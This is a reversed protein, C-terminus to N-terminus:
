TTVEVSRRECVCKHAFRSQGYRFPPAGTEPRLKKAIERGAKWTGAELVQALTFNVGVRERIADAIRDLMIVTVARLEVVASHSPDLPPVELLTPMSTSSSAVPLSFTSLLAPIKPKLLDFDILLGGNRYEPLGTMLEKHLIKWGLIKEMVEILSYTMWQSLKHFSVFADPSNEGDAKHLCDVPWVDGLSVGDIQSRAAPWVGSLGDVVIEWLIEIKVAIRYSSPSPIQQSSPHALLYDIIHGPRSSSEVTFYAANAADTLVSALRVLLEARGEIGTMPNSSSVQMAESIQSTSIKALGVADVRYPQEALDSFMGQSFMELSGVALGESRGIPEGGEKPTFKWENGAGADMLVSVVMLDVLRRAIELDNVNDSHWKTLLPEIRDGVFHRWRGHPPISAYNTGYDREILSCVFDVIKPQQSLDLTWYQLQDAEALAFVESCRARISPLSRLYSVPSVSPMLISGVKKTYKSSHESYRAQSISM